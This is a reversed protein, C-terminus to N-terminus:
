KPGGGHKSQDKEMERDWALADANIREEKQLLFYPAFNLKSPPNQELVVHARYPIFVPPTSGKQITVVLYGKVYAAIRRTDPDALVNMVRTVQLHQHIMNKRIKALDRDMGARATEYIKGSVLGRTLGLLPYGGDDVAQLLPLTTALFLAVADYTVENITYYAEAKQKLSLPARALLPQKVGLRYAFFWVSGTAILLVLLNVVLLRLLYVTWAYHRFHGQIVAPLPGKPTADPM